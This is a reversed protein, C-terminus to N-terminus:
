RVVCEGTSVPTNLATVDGVRRHVEGATLVYGTDSEDLSAGFVVGLVNGEEDTMPGGSNGERITGRVTYAEREVRGAAYIDPGAITLQSRVRAPAAEFPGSAPYGMVIADQGTVATKEAWTLPDLGLDPVHLVAIDVEPDYFVVEADQVGLMTDLRVSDTGAVVHANTMVYDDAVVFGSGLLRSQCSRADGLVHVVSPKLEEVLAADAVEVRPAEVQSSQEPELPAIPPLGSENLMASIQSPVNNWSDPTVRDVWNLVRSGHIGSAVTGGLGTALPLSILWGVIVVAAAQFVAGFLSDFHLCGRTRMGYRLQGGAMSGAVNGLVVLLVIIGAALLFRLGVSDTLQMALPVTVAGVVLGSAVGLISLVSSLAGQRWGGVLGCFAALGIVIDVILAPTVDNM